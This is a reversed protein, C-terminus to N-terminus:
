SADEAEHGHVVSRALRTLCFTQRPYQAAEYTLARRAVKIDSWPGAWRIWQQPEGTETPIAREVRYEVDYALSDAIAQAM